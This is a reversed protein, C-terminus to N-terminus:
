HSKTDHFPVSHISKTKIFPTATVNKIEKPQTVKVSETEIVIPFIGKQSRGDPSMKM